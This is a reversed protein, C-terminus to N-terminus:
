GARGIAREARGTASRRRADDAGYAWSLGDARSDRPSSGFAGFDHEGLLRSRRRGCRRSMWGSGCAGPTGSACRRGYRIACSAIAIAGRWRARARTRVDDDVVGCQGCRSIRQCCRMSRGCGPPRRSPQAATSFTIVQGTAHVGSDTRGAGEVPTAVGTLRALAAELRGRCREGENPRRASSARSARAM